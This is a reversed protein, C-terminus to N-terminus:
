PNGKQEERHREKTEHYRKPQTTNIRPRHTVHKASDKLPAPEPNPRELFLKEEKTTWKLDPKKILPKSSVKALVKHSTDPNQSNETLQLTVEQITMALHGLGLMTSHYEGKAQSLSKLTMKTSHGRSHDHALSKPGLMVSHGEEIAQDDLSKLTMKTSHGRSVHTSKTM